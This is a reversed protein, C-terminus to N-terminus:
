AKPEIRRVSIPKVVMAEHGMAPAFRVSGTKSDILKLLVTIADDPDDGRSTLELLGTSLLRTSIIPSETTPAEVATIVGNPDANIDGFSASGTLHGDKEVLHITM